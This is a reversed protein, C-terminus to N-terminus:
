SSPLRIWADAGGGPRADIGADGGHASAIAAVIALGLGAGEGERAEDGRTFRAFARGNMSAPLGPGHDLVHLAVAGDEREARLEVEGGGHRLANDVLNGIAQELRLPDADLTAADADADTEVRV